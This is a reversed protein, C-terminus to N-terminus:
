RLSPFIALPVGSYRQGLREFFDPSDICEPNDPETCAIEIVKWAGDHKAM